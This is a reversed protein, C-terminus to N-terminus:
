KKVGAILKIIINTELVDNVQIAKTCLAAIAKDNGKTLEDGIFLTKVKDLGCHQFVVAKDNNVNLIDVTTKGACIAKFKGPYKVNILEVLVKRELPSLPKIKYNVPKQGITQIDLDFQRSLEDIYKKQHQDIALADIFDVVKGKQFLTSNADAWVALRFNKLSGYVQLLREAISAYANGSIIITRDALHDNLLQVNQQSVAQLDPQKGRAWITDDFDLLIKDYSNADQLGFYTLLVARAYQEGDHKGHNNGMPLAVFHHKGDTLRLSARADTNLLLTFDSLDLGTEAMFKILELNSVGWSDGDEENNMVWVKKARSQNLYRYFDLYKITPQLSSWFTGTSIILLDANAVLEIAYPNLGAHSKGQYLTKVIKDHPNNWCVIEGEDQIIHGSATEAQLYVNDFSNLVVFDDIGFRDCFHHNTKEYGLEQYMQAYIINSISFDRYDYDHATPNQFFAHCYKNYDSLGWKTLQATIAAEEQGKPFDYRNKYFEVVNPDANEGHVALYMREHNKRIDSVGLTKTVARCVGTSKGNDYANVIVKIDSAPYFKKLGKILADNGSGGSLIVIRM